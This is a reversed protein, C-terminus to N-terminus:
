GNDQLVFVESVTLSRVAMADGIITKVERKTRAHDERDGYGSYGVYLFTRAPERVAQIYQLAFGCRAIAQKVSPLVEFLMGDFAPDMPADIPVFRNASRAHGEGGLSRSRFADFRSHMVTWAPVPLEQWAGILELPDLQQIAPAIQSIGESPVTEVTVGTPCRGDGSAQGAINRQTEALVHACSRIWFCVESIGNTHKHGRDVVQYSAHALEVVDL